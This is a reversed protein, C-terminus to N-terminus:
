RPDGSAPPLPPGAAPGSAQGVSGSRDTPDPMELTRVSPTLPTAAALLLAVASALWLTGTVGLVSGALVGALVFGVPAVM